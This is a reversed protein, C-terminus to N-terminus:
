TEFYLNMASISLIGAVLCCFKDHFALLAMCVTDSAQTCTSSFWADPPWSLATCHRVTSWCYRYEASQCPLMLTLMRMSNREIKQSKAKRRTMLSMGFNHGWTVGLTQPLGASFSMQSQKSCLANSHCRQCHNPLIWCFFIRVSAEVWNTMATQQLM